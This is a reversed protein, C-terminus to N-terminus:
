GRGELGGPVMGEGTIRRDGSGTLGPWRAAPCIALAPRKLAAKSATFYGVFRLQSVGAQFGGGPGFDGHFQVYLAFLLIPPILIKAVVRLVYHHHM